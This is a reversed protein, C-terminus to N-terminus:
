LEPTPPTADKYSIVQNDTAQVRIGWDSGSDHVIELNPLVTSLANQEKHISRFSSHGSFVLVLRTM